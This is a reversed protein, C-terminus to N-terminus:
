LSFADESFRQLMGSLLGCVHLCHCCYTALIAVLLFGRAKAARARQTDLGTSVIGNVDLTAFESNTVM